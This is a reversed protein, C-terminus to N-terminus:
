SPIKLKHFPNKTWNDKLDFLITKHYIKDGGIIKTKCKLYHKFREAEDTAQKKQNFSLEPVNNFNLSTRVVKIQKADYFPNEENSPEEKVLIPKINMRKFLLAGISSRNSSPKESTADNIKLDTFDTSLKSMEEINSIPKLEEYEEQLQLWHKAHEDTDLAIRETLLSSDIAKHIINFTKNVTTSKNKLQENFKTKIEHSVGETHIKELLKEIDKLMLRLEDNLNEFIITWKEDVLVYKLDLVENQLLDYKGLIYEYKKRLLRLLYELNVIDRVEFNKLREPLVAKLSMEIPTISQRLQLFQEHITTEQSSLAPIQLEKEPSNNTSLMKVLQDLTFCPKNHRIPSTFNIEQLEICKKLNEEIEMDLSNMHDNFIENFEIATDFLNKLSTVIPKLILLSESIEELLDFLVTVEKRFQENENNQFEQEIIEILHLLIPEITKVGNYLQYFETRGDQLWDFYPLLQSVNINNTFLDNLLDHSKHIADRMEILKQHTQDIDFLYDDFYTLFDSYLTANVSLLVSLAQGPFASDTEAMKAEMVRHQELHSIDNITTKLLKMTSM